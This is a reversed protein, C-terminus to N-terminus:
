SCRPTSSPSVRGAGCSVFAPGAALGARRREVLAYRAAFVRQVRVTRVTDRYVSAFLRNPEDPPGRSRHELVRDPAEQQDDGRHEEHGEDGEDQRVRRRARRELLVLVPWERLRGDVPQVAEIVDVLRDGLLEHVEQAVRDPQVETRAEDPVALHGLDDALAERDRRLEARLREQQRERYREREAYHARQSLVGRHVVPAEEERRDPVRDRGEHDRDEGDVDEGHIETPQRDDAPTIEPM